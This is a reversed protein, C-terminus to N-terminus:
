ASSPMRSLPIHSSNLRTSKRDAQTLNEEKSAAEDGTTGYKDAMQTSNSINNKMDEASCIKNVVVVFISVLILVYFRKM